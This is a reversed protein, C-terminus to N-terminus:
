RINLRSKGSASAPSWTSFWTKRTQAMCEMVSRASEARRKTSMFIICIGTAMGSALIEGIRAMDRIVVYMQHTVVTKTREGQNNYDSWVWFNVTRVDEEAVGEQRLAAVLATSEANNM